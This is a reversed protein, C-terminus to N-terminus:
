DPGTQEESANRKLGKGGSAKMVEANRCLQPEPELGKESEGESLKPWSVAGVRETVGWQRESM